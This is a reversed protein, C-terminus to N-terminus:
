QLDGQDNPRQTSDNKGMIITDTKKDIKYSPLNHHIREAQAEYQKLALENRLRKPYIQDLIVNQLGLNNQKSMMKARETTQLSKYYDMGAADETEGEGIAKNMQSLMFEAFQGEMSEAVDQYQKPIFKKDDVPKKDIAKPPNKTNIDIGM